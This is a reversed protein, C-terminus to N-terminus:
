LCGEVYQASVELGAHINTVKVGDTEFFLAYKQDQSKVILYHGNEDYQHPKVSMLKGYAKAVQRETSGVGVGSITRISHDYTSVRSIKNNEFMVLIKNNSELVVEVCEDIGSSYAEKIKFGLKLLKAQSMGLHIPGLGTYTLPFSELSPAAFASHTWLLAIMFLLKSALSNDM